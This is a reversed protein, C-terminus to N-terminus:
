DHWIINNFRKKLSYDYVAKCKYYNNGYFHVKKGLLAASICVHLRNTHVQEFNDIYQLFLMANQHTLSEVKPSLALVESLDVNSKPISVDTKEGDTRFAYLDGFSSHRQIHEAYIKDIGWMKDLTALPITESNSLRLKNLFYGISISIKDWYSFQFAMLSKIDLHVAMDDSIYVKSNPCNEKVYDYSIEERCIVEVNNSFESLLPTVSKITHPLIILKKVRKHIKKILLASWNTMLGLNGGGGYIVVKESFDTKNSDPILYKLGLQKFLLLTSSAIVSDGANGPNAIYYIEQDKLSKLYCYIDLHVRGNEIKTCNSM